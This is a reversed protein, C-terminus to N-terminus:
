VDYQVLIGKRTQCLRIYLTPRQFCFQFIHHQEKDCMGDKKAILMM